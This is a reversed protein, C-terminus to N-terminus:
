NGENQTARTETRTPQNELSLDAQLIMPPAAQPELRVSDMGNPQEFRIYDSNQGPTLRRNNDPLRIIIRPRADAEVRITKGYGRGRGISTLCLRIAWGKGDKIAKLLGQEALDMMQERAENCAAKLDPNEQLRKRLGRPTIKFEAAIKNVCGGHRRIATLLEMRKVKM